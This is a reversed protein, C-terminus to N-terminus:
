SDSILENVAAWQDLDRWNKLAELEQQTRTADKELGKLNEDIKKLREEAESGKKRWVAARVESSTVMSAVEGRHKEAEAVDKEHKLKALEKGQKWSRYAVFAAGIIAVVTVALGTIWGWSGRRDEQKESQESVLGVLTNKIKDLNM